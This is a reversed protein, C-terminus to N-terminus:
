RDLNMKRLLESFRADGRITDWVPEVKLLIMQWSREQYARDLESFAEDTHGLAASAEALLTPLVPQRAAETKLRAYLNAAEKKRGAIAYARSLDALTGVDKPDAALLQEYQAISEAARGEMVRTYALLGQANGNNADTRLINLFQQEARAYDRALYLELGVGSAIGIALPDLRQAKALEAESEPFRGLVYLLRAFYSHGPAYSPNLQLAHRFEREAGAWDWDYQLHIYGLSAHAEALDPDIELANSAAARALAFTQAAPQIDSQSVYVDALGSYALAYTGDKELSQKFYSIADARGKGTRKNWEYRGKLYLRYSEINETYNRAARPKERPNSHSRLQNAADETISRELTLPEVGRYHNAWLRRGTAAELLAVSVDYGGSTSHVSGALVADAQLRRGQAAPDLQSNRLRFVASRSMVTLDPIRSLSNIAGETLGDSLYDSAADGAANVFPLVAISRIPARAGGSLIGRNTLIAAAILVTLALAAAIWRGRPMRYLARGAIAPLPISRLRRTDDKELCQRLLEKVPPPTAAPLAQWDPERELIAAVTDITTTGPFPRKGTLLEYLLCGLAWIDTREDVEHGRIQEPSMYPPTGLIMGRETVFTLTSAESKQDQPARTDTLKKALGFDLVKVRGDATVKINGPKVDRHAIGKRHAADLAEAVQRWIRLAEEVPLGGDRRIREALTEGEALELVLYDVNGAKELGYIAAINPHNLSALAKAEREFRALSDPEAALSAPLVKIAVERDLKADRGRYVEGMGGAGLPGLIEYPGLRAGAEFPM